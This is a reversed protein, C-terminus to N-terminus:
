RVEAKKLWDILTKNDIDLGDIQPIKNAIKRRLEEISGRFDNDDLGHSKLLEVIFKCQKATTHIKPAANEAIYISETSLLEYIKQAEEKPLVLNSYNLTKRLQEWHKAGHDCDMCYHPVNKYTVIEKEGYPKVALAPQPDYYDGDWWANLEEYDPVVLKKAEASAAIQSLRGEEVRRLRRLEKTAPVIQGLDSSTKITYLEDRKKQLQLYEESERWVAIYIDTWCGGWDFCLEIKQEKWWQLIHNKKIEFLPNLSNLAELALDIKPNEFPFVFPKM